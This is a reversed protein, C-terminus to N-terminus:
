CGASTNLLYCFDSHILKGTVSVLVEDTGQLIYQPVQWFVSMPSANITKNFVTQSIAGDTTLIQKREIEIFGALAVSSCALLMGVCIRRLPTFEVGLRRLVRFVVKDMLPILLFLTAGEFLSLSAAPFIFNSTVKLNMYSGQLVYTTLGQFFMFICLLYFCEAISAYRWTGLVQRKLKPSTQFCFGFCFSFIPFPSRENESREGKKCKSGLCLFRNQTTLILPSPLFLFM